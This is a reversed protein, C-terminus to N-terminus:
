DDDAVEPCLNEVFRLPSAKLQEPVADSVDDDEGEILEEALHALGDVQDLLCDRHPLRLRHPPAIQCRDAEMTVEKGAQEKLM